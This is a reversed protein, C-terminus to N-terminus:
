GIPPGWGVTMLTAFRDRRNYKMSSTDRSPQPGDPVAEVLAPIEQQHVVDPLPPATQVLTQVPTEPDDAFGGLSGFDGVEDVM